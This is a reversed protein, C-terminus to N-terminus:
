IEERTREMGKRKTETFDGDATAYYGLLRYIEDKSNIKLAGGNHWLQQTQSQETQNSGVCMVETKKPNLKIRSWGEFKEVQRLLKQM